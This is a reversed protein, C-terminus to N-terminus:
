RWGRQWEFALDSLLCSYFPRNVKYKKQYVIALKTNKQKKYSAIKLYCLFSQFLQAMSDTNGDWRKLNLIFIAFFNGM